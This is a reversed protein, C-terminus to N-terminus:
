ATEKEPPTPKELEKGAPTGGGTPLGERREVLGRTCGLTPCGLERECEWHLVAGCGPCRHLGEELALDGHCGPCRQGPALELPQRRPRPSEARAPPEVPREGLGAHAVRHIRWLAAAVIGLLGLSMGLWFWESWHLEAM